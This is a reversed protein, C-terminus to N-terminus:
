RACLRRGEAEGAGIFPLVPHASGWEVWHRLGGVEEGEWDGLIQTRARAPSARIKKLKPAVLSAGAEDGGGNADDDGAGCRTRM